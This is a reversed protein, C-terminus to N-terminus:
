DIAVYEIHICEWLTRLITTPAAILNPSPVAWSTLLAAEVGNRYSITYNYFEVGFDLIERSDSCLLSATIMLIDVNPAVQLYTVWKRLTSVIGWAELEAGFYTWRAPSLCSSYFHITGKPWSQTWMPCFQESQKARHMLKWLSVFAGTPSLLM